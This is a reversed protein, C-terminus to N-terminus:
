GDHSGAGQNGKIAHIGRVILDGAAGIAKADRTVLTMGIGFIAFGMGAFLFLLMVVGFPVPESRYVLLLAIGISALIMVVGVLAAFWGARTNSAKVAARPPPVNQEILQAENPAFGGLTTPRNDTM